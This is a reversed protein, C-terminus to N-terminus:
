FCVSNSESWNILLHKAWGCLLTITKNSWCHFINLNKYKLLPFGGIQHKLVDKLLRHIMDYISCTHKISATHILCVYMYVTFGVVVVGLFVASPIFLVGIKFHESSEVWEVKQDLTKELETVTVQPAVCCLILCVAAGGGGRAWSSCYVDWSTVIVLKSSAKGFFADPFRDWLESLYLLLCLLGGWHLDGRCMPLEKTTIEESVTRWTSKFIESFGLWFANRPATLAM